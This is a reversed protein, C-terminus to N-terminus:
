GCLRPRCQRDGERPDPEDRKALALVQADVDARQEDEARRKHLVTVVMAWFGNNLFCPRYRDRGPVDDDARQEKRGEDWGRRM